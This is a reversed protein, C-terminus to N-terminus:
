RGLRNLKLYARRLMRNNYVSNHIKDHSCYLLLRLANYQGSCLYLSFKRSCTTHDKCVVLKSLDGRRQMFQSLEVPCITNGGTFPVAKM